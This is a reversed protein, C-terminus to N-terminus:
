AAKIIRVALYKTKLMVKSAMSRAKEISDTRNFTQWNSHENIVEITYETM